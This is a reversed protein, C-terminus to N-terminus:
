RMEECALPVARARALPEASARVDSFASATGELEGEPTLGLRLRVGQYGTSWVVEVSDGPLRRWGGLADLPPPMPVVRRRTSSRWAGDLRFREPPIRIDRPGLPPAWLGLELSWCTGALGIPDAAATVESPSVQVEPQLRLPQSLVAARANEAAKARASERMEARQPTGLLPQAAAADADADRGAARREASAARDAAATRDDAVAPEAVPRPAAPAAAESPSAEAQRARTVRRAPEAPETAIPAGPASLSRELAADAAPGGDVVEGRAWWGLGVAVVVSAAWAWRSWATIRRRARADAQRSGAGGELAGGAAGAAGGARRARARAALEEYGPGELGPPEALALIGSARERLAREEELRARCDACADLHARLEAAAAPDEAGLAGDLWAALRGEDIHPM